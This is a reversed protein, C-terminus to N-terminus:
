IDQQSPVSRVHTPAATEFFRRQHGMGIRSVMLARLMQSVMLVRLHDTLNYRDCSLELGAKSLDGFVSCIEKKGLDACQRSTRSGHGSRSCKSYFMSGHRVLMTSEEQLRQPSPTCGAIAVHGAHDRPDRGFNTPQGPLNTWEKAPM